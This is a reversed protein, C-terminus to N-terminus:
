PTAAFSNQDDVYMTLSVKRELAYSDINSDAAPSEGHAAVKIRSGPVGSAELVTKVYAVRKESLAQNYAAEGREDAFGDLQIYVDPMAALSAALQQLRSGTTDALTYEDTRFLLDMEIGAQMLRLLEPRAISQLRDIDNGLTDVNRQLATREEQLQAVRNESAKVSQTMEALEQDKAFFTDGLKAGMAAGLILGVPGGAVVGITAGVGVGVSEEKSAREKAMVPTAVFAVLASIAIFQNRM